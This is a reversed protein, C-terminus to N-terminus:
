SRAPSTQSQTSERVVLWTELLEQMPELSPQELRTFLMGATRQGMERSPMHVTTLPPTLQGALTIDDFGALAIDRPIHLGRDQIARLAGIALLDNIAWIASPPEALNLLALTEQYGDEMQYGCCRILTQDPPLGASATKELYVELRAQSLNPRAVGNIFGIRRHGLALLHDMLQAAGARIDPFVWDMRELSHTFVVPISREKLAKLEEPYMDMFTPMLILGDLRQQFLSRLAELEREPNLNSVVLALHYGHATVQEEAGELIEWYHPNHLAPLLFGITRSAGSKLSRALVNPEYGLRRAAEIVKKRTEESIPVRTDFRENLVFSVTARSVGALRAVDIQKPRIPM